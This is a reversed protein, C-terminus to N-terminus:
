DRHADVLGLVQGRARQAELDVAELDVLRDLLDLVRAALQAGDGVRVRARLGVRRLGVDVEGGAPGAPLPEDDAQAPVGLLDDPAAAGAVAGAHGLDLHHTGSGASTQEPHPVGAGASSRKQASHPIGSVYAPRGSRSAGTDAACARARLILGCYLSPSRTRTAPARLWASASSMWPRSRSSPTGDISRRERPNSTGSMSAAPGRSTMTGAEPRAAARSTRRCASIMRSSGAAAVSGARPSAASGARQIVDIRSNM